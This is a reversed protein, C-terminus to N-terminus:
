TPNLTQPQPICPKSNVGACYLKPNLYTPNLTSVQVTSNRDGSLLHSADDAPMSLVSHGDVCTIIDGEELGSSEASSHEIFGTIALRDNIYIKTTM